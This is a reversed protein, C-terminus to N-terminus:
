WVAFPIPRLPHHLFWALELNLIPSSDSRLAEVEVEFGPDPPALVKYGYGEYRAGWNEWSRPTM